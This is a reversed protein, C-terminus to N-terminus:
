SESLPSRQLPVLKRLAEARAAQPDAPLTGAAIAEEAHGAGAATVADGPVPATMPGATADQEPAAPVSQDGPIRPAPIRAGARHRGPGSAAGGTLPTKLATGLLSVSKAHKPSYGM